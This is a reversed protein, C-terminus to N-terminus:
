RLRRQAEALQEFLEPWREEINFTEAVIAGMTLEWDRTRLSFPRPM